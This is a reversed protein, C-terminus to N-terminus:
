RARIDCENRHHLNVSTTYDPKARIIRAMLKSVTTGARM